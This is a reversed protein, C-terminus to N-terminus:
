DGSPADTGADPVPAVNPICLHFVVSLNSGLAGTRCTEGTPCGHGSAALDCFARCQGPTSAMTQLCLLGDGCAATGITSLCADGLKGAGSAVCSFNPVTDTAWCTQGAACQWPNQNCPTPTPPTDSSSCGAVLALAIALVLLRALEYTRKM